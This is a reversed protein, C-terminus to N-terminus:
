HMIHADIMEVNAPVGTRHLWLLLVALQRLNNRAQGVPLSRARRLAHAARDPLSMGEPSEDESM